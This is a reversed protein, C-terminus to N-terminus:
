CDQHEGYVMSLMNESDPASVQKYDKAFQKISDCFGVNDDGISEAWSIFNQYDYMPDYSNFTAVVINPTGMTKVVIGDYTEPNIGNYNTCAFFIM